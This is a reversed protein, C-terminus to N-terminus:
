KGKVIYPNCFRLRKRWKPHDAMFGQLGRCGWGIYDTITECPNHADCPARMLDTAVMRCEKVLRNAQKAGVTQRCSVNPQASAGTTGLALALGFILVITVFGGMINMTMGPRTGPM